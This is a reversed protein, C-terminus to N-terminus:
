GFNKAALAVPASLKLSISLVISAVIMSVSAAPVVLMEAPSSTATVAASWEEISAMAVAAVALLHGWRDTRRGGVFLVASSAAPLAVLLWAGSLLSM